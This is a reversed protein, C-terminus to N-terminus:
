HAFGPAPAKPSAPPNKELQEVVNKLDDLLMTAMDRSFGERVVVRLVAVDEAGEPMTYAPVQWGRERLKDSVDYVSFPTGERVSFAFVPIASGDSLLEFHGLRVIQGSLWTATDRLAEMIRTYGTRGLRLFNYYQGVVQNGARSFNLTFTPMDGGLYNVHFILDEPLDEHSRWVVWGVGPRNVRRVTM